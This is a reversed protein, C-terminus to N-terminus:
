RKGWIILSAVQSTASNSFGITVTTGSFSAVVSDTTTASNMGAVVGEIVKFKKSVYVEGNTGKVNVFEAGPLFVRGTGVTTVNSM